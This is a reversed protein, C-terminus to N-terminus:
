QQSRMNTEIAWLIVRCDTWMEGWIGRLNAVDASMWAESVLLHVEPKDPRSLLESHDSKILEATLIM